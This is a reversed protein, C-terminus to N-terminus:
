AARRTPLTTTHRVGRKVLASREATCKPCKCTMSGDCHIEVITGDERAVVAPRHPQHGSAAPLGRTPLGQAELYERLGFCEPCRCGSVPGGQWRIARCADRSAAPRAHDSHSVVPRVSGSM